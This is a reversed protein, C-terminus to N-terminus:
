ITFDIEVHEINYSGCDKCRLCQGQGHSGVRLQLNEIRNDDRKGNIHHVTESKLLVRNLHKAMVLRHELVRQRNRAM